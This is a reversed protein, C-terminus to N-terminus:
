ARFHVEGKQLVTVRGGVSVSRPDLRAPSVMRDFFLFSPFQSLSQPTLQRGGLYVDFLDLFGSSLLSATNKRLGAYLQENLRATNDTYVEISKDGCSADEYYLLATNNNAINQRSVIYLGRASVASAPRSVTEAPAAPATPAAPAAPQAARPQAARPQAPASPSRLTEALPQSSLQAVQQEMQRVMATLQELEDREARSRRSMKKIGFIALVASVGVAAMSLVLAAASLALSAKGGSGAEPDAPESVPPLPTAPVSAPASPDGEGSPVTLASGPQSGSSAAASSSDLPDAPDTLVSSGAPVSLSDSSPLSGTAAPDSPEATFPAASVTLCCIAAALLATLPALLFKTHKATM